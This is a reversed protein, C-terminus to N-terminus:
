EWDHCPDDVPINQLFLVRELSREAFVVDPVPLQNTSVKLAPTSRWGVVHETKFKRCALGPQAL